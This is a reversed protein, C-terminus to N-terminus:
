RAGNLCAALATMRLRLTAPVMELLLSYVAPSTASVFPSTSISFQTTDDCSLDVLLPLARQAPKTDITLELLLTVMRLQLNSPEKPSLSLLLLPPKRAETLPMAVMSFLRNAGLSMEVFVSAQLVHPLGMDSPLSFMMM